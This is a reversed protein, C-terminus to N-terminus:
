RSHHTTTHSRSVELILLDHGANLRLAVAFSFLLIIFIHYIYKNGKLFEIDILYVRPTTAGEATRLTQKSTHVFFTTCYM